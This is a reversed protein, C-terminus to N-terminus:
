EKAVIPESKNDYMVARLRKAGRSQYNPDGNIYEERAVEFHPPNENELELLPYYGGVSQATYNIYLTYDPEGDIEFSNYHCQPNIYGAQKLTRIIDADKAEPDFDITGQKFRNNVTFGDYLNGWVDYTWVRYTPM